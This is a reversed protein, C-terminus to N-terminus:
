DEAGEASGAAEAILQQLDGSNFMDIIIDSGGILEGKIWLQPFTPWNAYKPLNARIEPNALVDVFAFQEGCAMLAQVAKASFGCQPLKPSGKMYLLITHSEVQEKIQEMVDM